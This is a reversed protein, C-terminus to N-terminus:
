GVFQGDLGLHERLDYTFEAMIDESTEVFACRANRAATCPRFLEPVGPITIGRKWADVLV